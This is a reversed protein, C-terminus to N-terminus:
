NGEESVKPIELQFEEGQYTINIEIMNVEDDPKLEKEQAAAEEFSTGDLQMMVAISTMRGFEAADSVIKEIKGTEQNIYYEQTVTAEIEEELEYKEALDVTYETQYVDYAVGDITKEEKANIQIAYREEYGDFREDVVMVKQWNENVKAIGKFTEDEEYVYLESWLVEGETVTLHKIHPDATFEGDYGYSHSQGNDTYTHLETYTFNSAYLDEFASVIVDKKSCGNCLIIILVLVVCFCKNFRNRM